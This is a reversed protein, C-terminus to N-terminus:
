RKEILTMLRKYARDLDVELAQVATEVDKAAIAEIIEAHLENAIKLHGRANLLHFHPAVKLWLNKIIDLLIPSNAHKYIIFHFTHNAQVFQATDNNAAAVKLEEFAENLKELFEPDSREIAWKLALSESEVRVNRIDTLYDLTLHPVGMSRGSVTTLAGVTMLRTLAERVPMPSVDLADALSAVTVSQGPQIGGELILKCLRDYVVQQLSKKRLPQMLKSLDAM